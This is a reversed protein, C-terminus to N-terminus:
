HSGVWNRDLCKRLGMRARYLMTWLNSPTISLEKCIKETSEEQLERLVFLNALKPPLRALCLHLL